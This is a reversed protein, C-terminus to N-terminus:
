NGDEVREIDSEFALLEENFEFNWHPHPAAEEEEQVNFGAWNLCFKFFFFFFATSM